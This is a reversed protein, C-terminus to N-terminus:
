CIFLCVSEDEPVVVLDFLYSAVCKSRKSCGFRGCCFEADHHKKERGEEEAVFGVKREGEVELAFVVFNVSHTGIMEERETGNPM